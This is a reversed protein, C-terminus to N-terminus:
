LCCPPSFSHGKTRMWGRRRHPFGIVCIYCVFFPGPMRLGGGRPPLHRDPLANSYTLYRFFAAFNTIGSLPAPQSYAPRQAAKIGALFHPQLPSAFAASLISSLHHLWFLHCCPRPAAPLGESGAGSRGRLLPQPPSRAAPRPTALRARRPQQLLCPYPHPPSRSSSSAKRRPHPRLNRRAPQM